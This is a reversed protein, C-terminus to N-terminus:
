KLIIDQSSIVWPNAKVEVIMYLPYQDIEEDTIVDPNWGGPIDTGMGGLGTINLKYVTNRMVSYYHEKADAKDVTPAVYNQDKIFYLYYMIGDTYVKINYTARWTSIKGQDPTGGNYATQLDATAKALDAAEQTQEEAPVAKAPSFAGPYKAQIDSLKTFYEDNYCYFCNSGAINDSLGEGLTAKWQFVLGTTNGNLAETVASKLYTSNNEMCYITALQNNEDYYPLEAYKDEVATYNYAPVYDDGNPNSFTLTRFESLTNYYDTDTSGPATSEIIWKAGPTILTNYWNEVTTAGSTQESETRLWHQQLYAKKAGNLLKFGQLTVKTVPEVATEAHSSPFRTNIADLADGSGDTSEIALDTLAGNVTPSIKVALRDLRIVDSCRAPNDYTNEESITIPEGTIDDSGNSENFMMFKSASATANVSAYDSQMTAQTVDTLVVSAPADAITGWVSASKDNAIVFVEYTGAAAVKIRPTAYGTYTEGADVSIQSLDSGKVLFSQASATNDGTPKLIIRINSFANEAETGEETDHEGPATKTALVSTPGVVQIQMYAGEVPEQNQTDDSSFKEEKNCAMLGLTLLGAFLLLKTKM